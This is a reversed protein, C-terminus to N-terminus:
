ILFSFIGLFILGGILVLFYVFRQRESLIYDKKFALKRVSKSLSLLVSTFLIFGFALATGLGSLRSDKNLFFFESLKLIDWIIFITFIFSIRFPFRFSKQTDLNRFNNYVLNDTYDGFGINKIKELIENASKNTWFIVYDNYGQVKHNSQIGKSM